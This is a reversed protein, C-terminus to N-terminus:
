SNKRINALTGIGAMTFILSSGGYSILPLPVGTYPMLGSNAAVHIFFQLGIWTTIGSAIMKNELSSTLMATRLGQYVLAMFILILSTTGIFGFEEGIVAFISDSAIEPLYKYKQRSQGFGIGFFGGSGLAIKVQKIQYGEELSVDNTHKGFYTLVRERRYPSAFMMVIALLLMTPVLYYFPKWSNGSTLYLVSGIGFLTIATSMNPQLLVLFTYLGTIYLYTKFPTNQDKIKAGKSTLRFTLYLILVLKALESPQFSAEGIFPLQPLPAPNLYIWRNAGNVCRAFIIAHECPIFSVLALFALLCLLVVYFIPSFELLARADVFYFIFFAILGLFVWGIHLFFFRHPDGFINQSHVVTASYIYILGIGLLISAIAVIPNEFLASKKKM